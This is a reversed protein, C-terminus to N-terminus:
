TYPIYKYGYYFAGLLQKAVVVFLVLLRLFLLKELSLPVLLTDISDVTLRTTNLLAGTVAVTPYVQICYVFWPRINTRNSIVYQLM